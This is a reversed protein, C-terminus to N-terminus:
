FPVAVACTAAWVNVRNGLSKALPRSSYAPNCSLFELPGNGYLGAGLGWGADTDVGGIVYVRLYDSAPNWADPLLRADLGFYGKEQARTTENPVSINRHELDAGLRVEGLWEAAPTSGRALGVPVFPLLSLGARAFWANTSARECTREFTTPDTTHTTEHHHEADVFAGVSFWDRDGGRWDVGGTLGVRHNEHSNFFNFGQTSLHLDSSTAPLGALLGVSLGTLHLATRGLDVAGALRIMSTRLSADVGPLSRVAGSGEAYIVSVQAIWPDAALTVGPSEIHLGVNGVNARFYSNNVFVGRPLYRLVGVPMTGPNAMGFPDAAYSGRAECDGYLCLNLGAIDTGLHQATAANSILGLVIAALWVQVRRRRIRVASMIVVRLRGQDDAM